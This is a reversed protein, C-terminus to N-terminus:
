ERGLSMVDEIEKAAKDLLQEAYVKSFSEEPIKISSQTGSDTEFTIEKVNIFQGNKLLETKTTMNIVRYQKAM